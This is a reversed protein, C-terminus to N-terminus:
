RNIRKWDVDAAAWKTIVVTCPIDTSNYVVWNGITLNDEWAYELEFKLYRTSFQYQGEM